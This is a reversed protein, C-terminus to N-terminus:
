PLNHNEEAGKEALSIHCIAVKAARIKRRVLSCKKLYETEGKHHPVRVTAICRLSRTLCVAVGM